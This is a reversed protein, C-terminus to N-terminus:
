GSSLNYYIPSLRFSIQSLILSAKEKLQTDEEKVLQCAIDYAKRLWYPDHDALSPDDDVLSSCFYCNEAYQLKKDPLGSTLLLALEQGSKAINEFSPNDFAGLSSIAKKARLCGNIEALKWQYIAKRLNNKRLILPLPFPIGQWKEYFINGLM